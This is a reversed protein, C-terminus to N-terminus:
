IDPNVRQWGVGVVLKYRGDFAQPTVTENCRRPAINQRVNRGDYYDGIDRLARGHDVRQSCRHGARDREDLAMSPM